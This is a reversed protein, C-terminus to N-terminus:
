LPATYNCAAQLGVPPLRQLQSQFHTLDHTFIYSEVRDNFDVFNPVASALPGGV